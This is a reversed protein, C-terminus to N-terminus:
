PRGYLHQIGRIDDAHLLPRRKWKASSDIGYFMVADRHSSHTLGLVHGIEHVLVWLIGVGKGEVTAWTEDDDMCMFGWNTSYTGTNAHALSGDKGDLDPHRVMKWKGSYQRAPASHRETEFKIDINEGSSVEHFRLPTVREWEDFAKRVQQRIQRRSLDRKKSYKKIRYTIRKLNWKNGKTAFRAVQPKHSVIDPNGCRPTNMLKITAEDLKGTSNLGNFRQFDTLAKKLNGEIAYDVDRNNGYDQGNTQIYGFRALYNFARTANEEQAASAINLLPTLVGLLLLTTRALMNYLRIGM